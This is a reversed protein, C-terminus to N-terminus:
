RLMEMIQEYSKGKTEPLYIIVFIAALACCIAFIFIAGHLGILDSVLPFFKAIVFGFIWKFALCLSQGLNKLNEPLVESIVVFPLNLLAWSSIFAHLSISGISVWNFSEVDYNWSKLMTYTGLAGLAM